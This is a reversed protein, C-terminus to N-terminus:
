IVSLVTCSKSAMKVDKNPEYPKNKNIVTFRRRLAFLLLTAYVLTVRNIRNLLQPSISNVVNMIACIHQNRFCYETYLNTRNTLLMIPPNYKDVTKRIVPFLSTLIRYGM